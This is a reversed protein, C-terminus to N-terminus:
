IKLGFNLFVMNSKDFSFYRYNASIFFTNTPKYQVGAIHYSTPNEYKSEILYDFRYFAQLKETFDYFAFTSFGYWNKNYFDASMVYDFEYAITLKPSQFGLFSSFIQKMKLSDAQKPQHNAYYFKVILEKIPKYEINGSFIFDSNKDQYKFPGEGNHADISLKLKDSPEYNLRAGFDAPMGFRFLEQFTVEIYRHAWFKDQFTLYQTNLLQGISFSLKPIFEWKIEAM